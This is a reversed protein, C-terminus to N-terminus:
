TAQLLCSDPNKELGVVFKFRKQTTSFFMSSALPISGGVPPKCILQHPIASVTSFEAIGEGWRCLSQSERKETKREKEGENGAKRERGLV